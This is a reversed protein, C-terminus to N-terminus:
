LLRVKEILDLYSNLHEPMKVMDFQQAWDFLTEGWQEIMKIQYTKGLEKIENAFTEIEDIIFTKHVKKWKSLFSNELQFRVDTLKEKIEPSLIQDVADNKQVDHNDQKSIEVHPILRMMESLLETQKLPKRLFAETNKIVWDDEDTKLVSATVIIIPIHSFKEDNKLYKVVEYGSMVPMKLDLLVLRVDYININDIAEKGNIAEVINVNWPGLFGKMLVRNIENDDAVLVTANNFDIRQVYKKEDANDAAVPLQAISVEKITFHFISGKGSNSEVWIKGGMMEVLRKTIALGLGTGGYKAHSQGEQQRFAEFILEQQSKPIGIGTDHVAFDLDLTNPDNGSIRKNVSLKIHGKETFKVANGVLNFLIQRLRVEDLSLGFPLDPDIELIFRLGKEQVKLTFINEIESFITKPNVDTKHIELKGAEIKSLDLIDNILSLLTKGSSSIASLYQRQKADEIQGLLLETFGFIANMPTRIEHSMSALFESKSKNAAEATEREREAREKEKRETIDVVSGEYFLVHGESTLVRRATISVSIISKDKRFFKTELGIIHQDKSLLEQVYNKDNENVYLDWINIKSPIDDPSEYGLLKASSLNASILHGEPTIQYIGEFANEYLSRYKKESEELSTYLKANEISIAAQSALFSLLEVREPTFVGAAQNNELYLLGVLNGSRLIPFCLISRPRNKIVYDDRTFVGESMADTLVLNEKTRAVYQVIAQCLSTCDNLPMNKIDSDLEDEMSVSGAINYNDSDKLILFGKRAGASEIVIKMLHDILRDFVIEGSIAQSAKLVSTIDLGKGEDEYITDREESLLQHYREELFRVLGMAGWRLCCHRAEMMYARALDYENRILCLQAALENALAEENIYQNLKALDIAQDYLDMARNHEGTVRYLEAQMIYQKHLYNMPAHHAFKAMKKINSNVRSLTKKQEHKSVFPFISMRALADYFYYQAPTHTATVGDLYLEMEDANEIAMHYNHFLYCLRLKNFYLHGLANKVNAAKLQPLAEDENFADGVLRTPDAAQGTLNLVAQHHIAHSNWITKQKLQRDIVESYIQMEHQLDSLDRGMFYLTYCYVFGSLAAFELNGIELGIKYAEQYTYSQLLESLHEKWHRILTNVVFITNPFTERANFREVLRIALQGFRYGLEMDGVVGCLISGYTAYSFASLPNNGHRVSLLVQKFVILPFLEPVAFYAAASVSSMVRMAALKNPDKMRPLDILQDVKKQSLVMRTRILGWIIHVKQPKKPFRVGLLRLIERSLSVAELPKNLAMFSQIKIEYVKVKDLVSRAKHFVIHSLQDMDDFRACLFSAEAGETYLALALDYQNEWCSESLLQIGVRLYRYSPEYAASSKARKSAILNLESLEYKEQQNSILDIGFNLQNVIDFIKQERNEPSINKLLLQGVKQHVARKEKEPILSYAAQQIRDHSFKYQFNTLPLDLMAASNSQVPMQNIVLDGHLKIKSIEVILGAVLADDLVMITKIQSKEFVISLTELDFQNGICAALKLAGQTDHSLKQIKGAMLEVVNDTIGTAQIQALDWYWGGKDIDFELLRESYLSKLFESMFFPNGNTKAQVLEALQQTEQESYHLTDEVFQNIHKLELHSLFLYNVIAGATKIEELTIMLPHAANVENDRYAGIIFLSRDQSTMLLQLLKLSASDAWQLDDLFLVLPHEPLTFVKIFRQFWINFRNQAEAPPLEAVPPQKGIILELEPIVDIIVQATSSLADILKQHWVALRDEPETLLQRMLDSFASVMASYPINRRLQDFKGSIFYGRHRVISKHIENVLSTKGIGSYGAVLMLESSGFKSKRKNEKDEDSISAGVREFSKLLTDVENERGYLKQPITFKETVDKQAIPFTMIQGDNQYLKVCLNLDAILGRTSQYRDEATKSLLKLIIHSVVEPIDPKIENLPEPQRAVHCHILELPDNNQFPRRGCLLEYLTIGLSYYDTRYDVSRNMRGTLEPSMYPLIQKMRRLDVLSAQEQMLRSAYSFDFIKIQNNSENILISNPNINKHIVNASHIESIISAIQIGIKLITELPLEKEKILNRLLIAEFDEQIMVLTNKYKELGYVKIIGPINNLRQTIEFQQKYKNIEDPTPYEEKLIKLVVPLLDKIRRAQYIVIKEDEYSKRITQYGSITIM